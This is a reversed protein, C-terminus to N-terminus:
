IFLNHLMIPCVFLSLIKCLWQDAREESCSIHWYYIPGYWVKWWQDSLKQQVCGFTCSWFTLVLILVSAPRLGTKDYSRPRLGWSQCVVTIPFNKNQIVVVVTV